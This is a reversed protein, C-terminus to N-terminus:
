RFAQFQANTVPYRSIKFSLLNLRGGDQYTFEDAPIELWDIELLGQADLGIGFRQDWNLWALGTSIANREKPNPYDTVDTIAAQWQERFPM